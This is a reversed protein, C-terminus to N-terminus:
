SGLGFGQNFHQQITQQSLISNYIAVCQVNAIVPFKPPPSTGNEPLAAGIFLPVSDPLKVYKLGPDLSKKVIQQVGSAQTSAFIQCESGDFTAVLHVTSGLDIAASGAFPVTTSGVGLSFTWLNDQSAFLGFGALLTTSNSVVVGRLAPQTTDAWSPDPKVWAEVTFPPDMNILTQFPVSVVGGDFFVSPDQQNNKSTDVDGVLLGLQNFRVNGSAAASKNMGDYNSMGLGSMYTGNFDNTWLDFATPGATETLPWFAVLSTTSANSTILDDYPNTGAIGTTTFACGAFGLLPVVGLLALPVLVILTATM